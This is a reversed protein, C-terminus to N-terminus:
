VHDGSGDMHCNYVPEGAKCRGKEGRSRAHQKLLTIAGQQGAQQALLLPTRRKQDIANPDAGHKLLLAAGAVHGLRAAAHLPGVGEADAVDCRAGKRLLVDVVLDYGRKCAALLATEHDSTVWDLEPPAALGVTTQDERSLILHACLAHGRSCALFLPSQEQTTVLTACAGNALLIEVCSQHGGSSALHLATAANHRRHNIEGRGSTALLRVCEAHGLGSAVTLPTDGHCLTAHAASAGAGLLVKVCAAYGMEAAAFMPTEGALSPVPICGAALLVEVINPANAQVARYIPSRNQGDTVFRKDVDALKSLEEKVREISGAAAAECLDPCIPAQAHQSAGSGMRRLTLSDL